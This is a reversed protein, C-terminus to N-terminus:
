RSITAADARGSTSSAAKRLWTGLAVACLVAEVAFFSRSEFRSMAYRLVLPGLSAGVSYTALLLASSSVRHKEPMGDNIYGLATAYITTMLGVGISFAIVATERSTTAYLLLSLAILVALSLRMVAARGIRDALRGVPFQVLLAACMGWGMLAVIQSPAYGALRFYEPSSSFHGGVLFGALLTGILGRLRHDLLWQLTSVVSTSSSAVKGQDSSGQPLQSLPIVAVLLVLAATLLNAFPRGPSAGLLFQGIADGLYGMAMYIGFVRGRLLNSARANLGSELCVFVGVMGVGCGFRGLAWIPASDSAALLGAFLALLLVFIRLAGNRGVASVLRGTVMAGGIFGLYYMGMVTGAWAGAVTSVLLASTTNVVGMAAMLAVYAVLVAGLRIKESQIV